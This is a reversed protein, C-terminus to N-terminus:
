RPLRSRPSRRPIAAQALRFLGAFAITAIMMAIAFLVSGTATGTADRIQGAVVPLFASGAYYWIYYIGLGPGRNEPSLVEASFAAVIPASVAYLIGFALFTVFPIQTYPIFGGVLTAGILGTFMVVNPMGFRTALFGGLPLSIIFVWSM